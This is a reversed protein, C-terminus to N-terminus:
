SRVQLSRRVEDELMGWIRWTLEVVEPRGKDRLARPRPLDIPIDECICGPRGSMVLVRDGLLVAEEIDHTVYVVLKRHDKWIRLLEEELILKTQVDLAGFPEDMLLMQPDSVFARAIAARQSMGVSLEHPYNGAFAALGVRDIFELARRHREQRSVGRMELGFAVNDVVSMWPFLGHEQFVLASHPGAAGAASSFEVRGETPPTLGAIIKLLTTKGCGSPGVICVFQEPGAGFSVNELAVIPGSRTEYTHSVNECRFAMGGKSSTSM